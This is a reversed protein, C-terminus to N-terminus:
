EWSAEEWGKATYQHLVNGEVREVREWFGEPPLIGMDGLTKRLVATDAKETRTLAWDTWLAEGDNEGGRHELHMFFERLPRDWGAVVTVPMGNKVTDFLVRAM